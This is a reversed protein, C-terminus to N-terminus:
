TAELSRFGQFTEDGKLRRAEEDGRCGQRRCCRRVVRARRFCRRRYPPGQPRLPLLLLPRQHVHVQPIEPGAQEEGWGMQKHRRKSGPGGVVVGVTGNESSVEGEREEREEGAPAAAGGEGRLGLLFM